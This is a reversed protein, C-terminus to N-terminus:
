DVGLSLMGVSSTAREASTDYSSAQGGEYAYYQQAYAWYSAILEVITEDPTGSARLTIAKGLMDVVEDGTGTYTGAEVVIEDGDSAADVAAQINDFDAAGDDDVTWTEAMASGTLGLVAVAILYRMAEREVAM